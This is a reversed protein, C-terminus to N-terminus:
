DKSLLPARIRFQLPQQAPPTVSPVATPSPFSTPTPTPTGGPYATRIAELDDATLVRRSEGAGIQRYMVSKTLQSTCAVGEDVGCSHGLGAAHGLEHLVTTPLDYSFEPVPTTTSWVGDSDLEMDFESLKGSTKGFITCTRGLVQGPLQVFKITNIGDVEFDQNDLCSGTEGSTTGAWQFSFAAGSANWTGLATQIVGAVDLGAPADAPNYSVPVPIDSAKWLNPNVKFAAVVRPESEEELAVSGDPAAVLVHRVVIYEEPGDALTPTSRQAGLAAAGLLLGALLLWVSLQRHHGRLQPATDHAM